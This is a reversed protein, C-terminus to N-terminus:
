NRIRLEQNAATIGLRARAQVPAIVYLHDLVTGCAERIGLGDVLSASRGGALGDALLAAGQAAEKAVAAFGTLV